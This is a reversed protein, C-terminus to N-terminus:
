RPARVNKKAHTLMRSASTNGPDRALVLECETVAREFAGSFEYVVCLTSHIPVGNDGLRIATEYATAAERFRRADVYANGLNTYLEPWSPRLAIAKSFVAIAEQPRWM